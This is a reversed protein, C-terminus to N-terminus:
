QVEYVEILAVGTTGNVGKVQVTYDGPALTAVIVADRSNAPLAFASVQAFAAVLAAGGGWNDNSGVVTGGQFLTLQPDAVVGPVNFPAMGLTPGVARVLVTKTGSGGVVFGVTLETGLHKLVSVNVLRPTSASFSASPTADYLEVIVTGTGGNGSVRVSNDGAGATALLVADLSNAGTFAFAGVAAMADRVVAGGGWNDNEGVKTGGLFLELKPDELTGPVGLAGLSPGVARIV